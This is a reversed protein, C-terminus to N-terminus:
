TNREKLKAEIADFTPKGIIMECYDEIDNREQETLGVWKHPEAVPRQAATLCDESQRGGPPTTYLPTLDYVDRHYKEAETKDTILVRDSDLCWNALNGWAVPEQVPAPQAAPEMVCEVCSCYGTGCNPPRKQLTPVTQKAIVFSRNTADRLAIDAAQQHNFPEQVRPSAVTPASRAQKIATIAETAKRQIMGGTRQKAIWEVTELVLDLARETSVAHDKTNM